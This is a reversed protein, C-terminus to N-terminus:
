VLQGITNNGYLWKTVRHNGYESVYINKQNDLCMAYSVGITTLTTGSGRGNVVINSFSNGLPWQLVRYNNTDLIYMTQTSDIRIASPGNLEALSSGPAVTVGAVTTGANSGLSVSWFQYHNDKKFFVM